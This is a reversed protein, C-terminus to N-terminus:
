ENDCEKKDALTTSRSSSHAASDAIADPAARAARLALVLAGLPPVGPRDSEAYLRCSAGAEPRAGTVDRGSVLITPSGYGRLHPPADVATVDHEIWRAPLGEAELARRLQDRAPEVNPCDPFFLLEVAIM